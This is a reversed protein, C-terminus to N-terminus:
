PNRAKAAEDQRRAHQNSKKAGKAISEQLFAVDFRGTFSLLTWMQPSGGLKQIHRSWRSHKGQQVKNRKRSGRDRKQLAQQEASSHFESKAAELFRDALDGRIVQDMPLGNDKLM